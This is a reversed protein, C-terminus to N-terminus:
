RYKGQIYDVGIRITSDDIDEILEVHGIQRGLVFRTKGNLRKKDARTREVILQADIRSIGEPVGLRELLADQRQQHEQQWLGLHCAIQGAAAMGLIVAEGHNYQYQTASEIAHGITHGYNLIGRLGSEKEDSSVVSAKLAVNRAILWDLREPEISMDIVSELHQELFEFMEADRIIGHKVVEAMGAVRERQPLSRLSTTDTFVLRPQHFAGITNKGLRHNVATKGGVSADVQAVVTTPVQVWDVGRLYSAAVFGGLDGVVGGGLALLWSGRDLEAEILRGFIDEAVTLNKAADRGTFEIVLPNFGHTRLSDMALAGLSDTLLVKDVLVAVRSGLGLVNCHSGLEAMIDHGVLVDYANDALDVAIRHL